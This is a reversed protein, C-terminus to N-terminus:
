YCSQTYAPKNFSKLKTHLQIFLCLFKPMKEAKKGESIIHEFVTKHGPRHGESVYYDSINFMKGKENLYLRLIKKIRQDIDGLETNFTNQVGRADCDIGKEQKLRAIGEPFFLEFWM